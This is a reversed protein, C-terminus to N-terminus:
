LTYEFYEWIDPRIKLLHEGKQCMSCDVDEVVVVVVVVVVVELVMNYYLTLLMIEGIGM